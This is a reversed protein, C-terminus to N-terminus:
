RECEPFIQRIEGLDSDLHVKVFLRHLRPGVATAVTPPATVGLSLGKPPKKENQSGKRVTEKRVTKSEVAYYSVPCASTTFAAIRVVLV